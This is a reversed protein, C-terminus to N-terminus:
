GSDGRWPRVQSRDPTAALMQAATQKLLPHEASPAIEALPVLVFKREAIRPHPIELDPPAHVVASGFFLIDMDITRSEKPGGEAVPARRRGLTREIGLLANMLQRPMLETEAEVVCNLFWGAAGGIDIPETEYLSSQRTVRVGHIGLAEIARAINQPRDGMNSGLSVYVTKM